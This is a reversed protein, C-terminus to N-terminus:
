GKRRCLPPAPAPPHHLVICPAPSPSNQFYHYAPSPLTFLSHRRWRLSCAWASLPLFGMTFWGKNRSVACYLAIDIGENWHALECHISLPNQSEKHKPAVLWQRGKAWSLFAKRDPREPQRHNQEETPISSNSREWWPATIARPKGARDSFHLASPQEVTWGGLVLLKSVPHGSKRRRWKSTARLMFGVETICLM